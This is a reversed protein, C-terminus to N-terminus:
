EDTLPVNAFAYINRYGRDQRVLAENFKRKRKLIHQIVFKYLSLFSFYMQDISDNVHTKTFKYDPM